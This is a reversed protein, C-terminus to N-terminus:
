EKLASINYGAAIVSSKASVSASLMMRDESNTWVQEIDFGGSLEAM